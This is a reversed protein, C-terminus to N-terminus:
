THSYLEPNGIPAKRSDAYVKRKNVIFRCNCYIKQTLIPISLEDRIDLYLEAKGMRTKVSGAYVMRQNVLFIFLVVYARFPVIM